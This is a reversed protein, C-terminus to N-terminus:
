RPTESKRVRSGVRKDSRKKVLNLSISITEDEPDSQKILTKWTVKDRNM